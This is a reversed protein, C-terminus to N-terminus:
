IKKPRFTKLGTLNKNEKTESEYGYDSVFSFLFSVPKFIKLGFIQVVVSVYYCSVQNSTSWYLSTVATFLDVKYSFLGKLRHDIIQQKM